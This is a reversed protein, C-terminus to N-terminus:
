FWGKRRRSRRKTGRKGGMAKLAFGAAGFAARASGGAAMAKGMVGGFANFAGAMKKM